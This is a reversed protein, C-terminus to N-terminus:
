CTKLNPYSSHTNKKETLYSMKYIARFNSNLFTNYRVAWFNTQNNQLWYKKMNM